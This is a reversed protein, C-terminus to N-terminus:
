KAHGPVILQDAQEAGIVKASNYVCIKQLSQIQDALQAILSSM